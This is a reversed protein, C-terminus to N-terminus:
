FAALSLSILPYLCCYIMGSSCYTAAMRRARRLRTATCLPVSCACSLRCATHVPIRRWRHIRRRMFAAAKPFTFIRAQLVVESPAFYATQTNCIYVLTFLERDPTIHGVPHLSLITLACKTCQLAPSERTCTCTYMICIGWLTCVWYARKISSESPM